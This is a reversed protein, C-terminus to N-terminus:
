VQRGIMVTMIMVRFEESYAHVRLTILKLIINYLLAEIKYGSM